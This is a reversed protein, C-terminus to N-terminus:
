CRRARTDGSDGRAQDAGPAAEPVHFRFASLLRVLEAQRRTETKLFIQKLHSRGTTIAIGLRRTSARLGEGKAIEIALKAQAETLGFHCRLQDTDPLSTEGPKAAFVIVLSEDPQICNAHTALFGLCLLDDAEGLRHFTMRSGSSASAVCQKIIRRLGTAEAGVPSSLCGSRVCLRGSELLRRAAASAFHLRLTGDTVLVGTGLHDLALAAFQDGLAALGAARTEAEIHSPAAPRHHVAPVTM